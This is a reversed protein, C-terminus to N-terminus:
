APRKDFIVTVTLGNKNNMEINGEIQDILDHVLELGIGGTNDLAVIGPGNDAIVLKVMSENSSLHITLKPFLNKVGFAHKYANTILENAILGLPIAKTVTVDLPSLNVQLDITRDQNYSLQLNESLKKLYLAMNISDVRDNSHLQEQLLSIAYVKEKVEEFLEAHTDDEAKIKQMNLLSLIISLNNKVRHNVEALLVQKQSVLRELELQYQHNRETELALSLLQAMSHIFSKEEHNWHHIEGTHEFCVVGIMEGNSRIPVDIMSTIDHPILYISLLEANMPEERAYDSVIIENRKLYKFYNPLESGKLTSEKHVVGTRANVACLSILATKDDNFVWANARACDLTSVSKLLLSEAFKDASGNRLSHSRALDEITEIYKPM